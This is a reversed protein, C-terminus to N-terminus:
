GDEEAIADINISPESIAPLEIRPAATHDTFYVTETPAVIVTTPVSM